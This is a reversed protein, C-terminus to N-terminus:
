AATSAALGGNHQNLLDHICGILDSASFPKSLVDDVGQRFGDPLNQVEVGTTAIVKIHPGIKRMHRLTDEGNITPMNYDLLVVNVKDGTYRLMDLGKVGNTATLVELGGEKLMESIASLYLADDDIVLVTADADETYVPEPSRRMAIPESPDRNLFLAVFAGCVGLIFGGVQEFVDWDRQLRKM